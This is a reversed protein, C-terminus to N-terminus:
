LTSYRPFDSNENKRGKGKGGCQGCAAGSAHGLGNNRSDPEDIRGGGAAGGGGGGGGGGPTVDTITEECETTECLGPFFYFDKMLHNVPAPMQKYSNDTASCTAM